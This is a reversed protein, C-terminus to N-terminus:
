SPFQDSPACAASASLTGRVTGWETSRVATARPALYAKQGLLGATKPITLQEPLPIALLESSRLM